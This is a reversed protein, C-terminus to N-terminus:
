RAKDPPRFLFLRVRSVETESFGAALAATELEPAGVYQLAVENPLWHKSLFAATSRTSTLIAAQPVVLMGSIGDNVIRGISDAITDASSSPLPTPDILRDAAFINTAGDVMLVFGAGPACLVRDVQRNAKYQRDQSLNMIAVMNLDDAPVEVTNWLRNLSRGNSPVLTLGAVGALLAVFGLSQLRSSSQDCGTRGKRRISFAETEKAVLYILALGSPISFLLRHFVFISEGFSSVAGCFPIAIFPLGLGILPGVTLWGIVHKRWLLLLGATLNVIGFLGLVQTARYAAPSKWAFLNFGYCGNLWGNPRYDLDLLPNKPWWLVAAASLVVACAILFPIISRRWKILRWTAVSAISLGAIGFGQIHNFGILFLAATCQLLLAFAFRVRGSSFRQSASPPAVVDGSGELVDGKAVRLTLIVIRTLALAGIQALVTSALGYYRYFSFCVNGFTLVNVVVFLFAWRHDLGVAKGLLYYQWALLLCMGTSYFNLWFLLSRVPIQGLLSYAFFYVSKYGASHNGVLDHTSWETIRRFHEWPDSPWELYPGPIYFLLALLIWPAVATAASRLASRVYVPARDRTWADLASKPLRLIPAGSAEPPPWARLVELITERKTRQWWAHLVIAALIVHIAHFAWYVHLLPIPTLSAFQSSIRQGGDILRNALKGSHGANAPWKRWYYVLYVTLYPIFFAWGSRFYSTLQRRLPLLIDVPM